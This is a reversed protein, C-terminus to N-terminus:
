RVVPGKWELMGGALNLLNTYGQQKLVRYAGASRNGSRCILVIPADKEIGRLGQGVTMLPYLLAGDLHGGQFEQRERVDILVLKEGAALRRELDAPSISKIGDGEGKRSLMRWVAFLVLGVLVLYILNKM